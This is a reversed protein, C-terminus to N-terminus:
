MEVRLKWTFNIKRYIGERKVSCKDLLGMGTLTTLSRRISTIPAGPLAMEQVEFPTFEGDTNKFFELIVSNQTDAKIKSAALTAGTEGTTNYFM